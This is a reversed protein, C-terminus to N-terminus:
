ILEGMRTIKHSVHRKRDRDFLGERDKVLNERGRERDCVSGWWSERVARQRAWKTETTSGCM